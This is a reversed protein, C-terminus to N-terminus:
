KVVAIKIIASEVKGTISKAEIRALYIGSQISSVNWIIENDFGGNALTHLQDVKGGSLDYIKISVDADESVFFRIATTSEYVPNPYNYAKNVPFFKNSVNNSPYESIFSQNLRNGNLESWDIKSIISSIKWSNFKNNVDVVSLCIKNDFTFLCPSAFNSAGISIPFGDVIKGSGGNIAIINGKKTFAIIESKSDGEIDASLLWGNFEDDVLTFPFNDARAGRLNFAELKNGNTVVLYNSGDSKLDSFIFKDDSAVDLVIQTILSNKDFIKIKKLGQEYVIAAVILENKYMTSIIESVRQNKLSHTAGDIYIIFNDNNNRKKALAVLRSDVSIKEIQYDNQLIIENKPQPNASILNMLDYFVIKGEQTAFLIELNESITKLVVPSNLVSFSVNFGGSIINSNSVKIYNIRSPTLIRSDLTAGIIYYVGGFKIIAPKYDSFNQISDTYTSDSIFLTRGLLIIQKSSNDDLSSVFKAIENSPLQKTYLPKIISDRFAIKFSMINDSKSFDYISILSNAGSNSHTSPRSNKDFRNKFLKSPNDAYWLDFETGEGIIEDGFISFFKEGIDDIGDAEEVDVGRLKKDTNIKNTAIKKSIVNEDIHWIVIGNGPLAWDFEDVDTVVGALSDTNFSRYGTTDKIFTKTFEQDGIKYKVLSGNKLADRQKNEIL